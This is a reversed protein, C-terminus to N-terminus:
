KWSDVIMQNIDTFITGSMPPCKESFGRGEMSAITENTSLDILDANIYDFEYGDGFCRHAWSVDVYADILLFYRTSAENYRIIKKGEVEIAENVSAARLVKFGSKKLRKEIERMWPGGGTVNLAIIKPANIKEDVSLTQTGTAVCSTVLLGLVLIALFKKM